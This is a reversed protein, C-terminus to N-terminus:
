SEQSPTTISIPPQENFPENRSEADLRRQNWAAVAQAVRAAGIAEGEAKGKSEGELRAREELKISERVRRFMIDVGEKLILVVTAISMIKPIYDTTAYIARFCGQGKIIEYVYAYIFGGIVIITLWIMASEADQVTFISSRKDKDEM